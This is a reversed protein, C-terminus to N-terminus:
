QFRETTIHEAEIYMLVERIKEKSINPNTIEEIITLKFDRDFNYGPMIFHRDVPIPNPIKKADFRYKTIRKHTM